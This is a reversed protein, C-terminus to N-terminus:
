AALKVGQDNLGEIYARVREVEVRGRDLPPQAVGLDNDRGCRELENFAGVCHRAGITAAMGKLGHAEFEVRRADRAAIAEALRGLRGAVDGLFTNLLAERLGPIGMSTDNLREFDIPDGTAPEGWVPTEAGSAEFAPQDPMRMRDYEARGVISVRPAPSGSVPGRASETLRAEPM